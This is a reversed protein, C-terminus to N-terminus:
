CQTFLLSILVSVFLLSSVDDQQSRIALYGPHHEAETRIPVPPHVCVNNKCYIVEGEEAKCLRAYEDQDILGLFSSARRLLNNLAM